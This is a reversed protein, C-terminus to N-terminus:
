ILFVDSLSMVWVLRGGVAWVIRELDLLLALKMVFQNISLSLIVNIQLEYADEIIFCDVYQPNAIIKAWYKKTNEITNWCHTIIWKSSSQLFHIYM